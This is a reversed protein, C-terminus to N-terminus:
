RKKPPGSRTKKIQVRANDWLVGENPANNNPQRPEIIEPARRSPGWHAMSAFRITREGLRKARGWKIGM